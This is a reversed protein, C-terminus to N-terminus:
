IHILSLPDVALVGLKFNKNVIYSGFSEIFTSKGVGPPGSFGVRIAHGPSKILESILEHSQIIDEERSSEVLTIAKAIAAREGAKIRDRLKMM